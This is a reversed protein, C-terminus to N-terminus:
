SHEPYYLGIISAANQGTAAEILLQAREPIARGPEEPVSLTVTNGSLSQLIRPDLQKSIAGRAALRFPGCASISSETSDSTGRKSILFGVKAGIQFSAKLNASSPLDIQFLYEDPHKVVAETALQEFDRRVVLEGAKYDRVAIRHILTTREDWPILLSTLADADGVEIPKLDQLSLQSRASIESRFGVFSETELRSALYHRQTSAAIIAATVVAALRLQLPM